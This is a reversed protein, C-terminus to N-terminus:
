IFVSVAAYTFLRMSVYVFVDRYTYVNPKQQGLDHGLVTFMVSWCVFYENEMEEGNKARVCFM